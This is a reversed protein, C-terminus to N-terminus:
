YISYRVAEAQSTTEFTSISASRTVGFENRPRVYIPNPDQFLNLIVPGIVKSAVDSLVAALKKNMNM